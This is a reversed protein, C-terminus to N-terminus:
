RSGELILRPDSIDVLEDLEYVNEYGYGYLNIYTPINLALMVPDSASPNMFPYPNLGKAKTASRDKPPGVKSAFFVQDGIFNNNCYIIVKTSKDPIAMMLNTTTFETFPLNIAGKVHKANYNVRSRTDLIVTNEEEQLRILKDLSILRKKRQEKAEFHVKEYDDMDVLAKPYSATGQSFVVTSILMLIAITRLNQVKM